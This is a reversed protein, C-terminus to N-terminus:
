ADAPEVIEGHVKVKICGDEFPGSPDHEGDKSNENGNPKRIKAHPLEVAECLALLPVRRDRGSTILRSPGQGIKATLERIIRLFQRETM